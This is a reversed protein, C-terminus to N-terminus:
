QTKKNVEKEKDSESWDDECAMLHQFAMLYKLAFLQCTPLLPIAGVKGVRCTGKVSLPCSSFCPGMLM